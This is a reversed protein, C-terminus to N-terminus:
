KKVLNFLTKVAGKPLNFKKNLKSLTIRSNDTMGREVYWEKLVRRIQEQDYIVEKFECYTDQINNTQRIHIMMKEHIRDLYPKVYDNVLENMTDIYANILITLGAKSLIDSITRKKGFMKILALRSYVFEIRMPKYPISIGQEAEIQKQKDYAKVLYRGKILRTKIGSTMPKIIEEDSKIEYRANQKVTDLLAHSILLFVNEYNCNEFVETINVEISSLETRFPGDFNFRITNHIDEIIDDFYKLQSMKVPVANHVDFYKPLCLAIVMKGRDMFIEGFPYHNQGIISFQKTENNQPMKFTLDFKCRDIGINKKKM